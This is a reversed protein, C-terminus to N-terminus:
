SRKRSTPDLRQRQARMRKIEKQLAETKEDRQQETGTKQLEDRRLKELAKEVSLKTTGAM